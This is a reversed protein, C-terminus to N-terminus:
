KDNDDKTIIKILKDFEEKYYGKFLGYGFDMGIFFWFIENTM